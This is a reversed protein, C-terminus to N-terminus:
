SQGNVDLDFLSKSTLNVKVNWFFSCGDHVFIIDDSIKNNMEKSWIFNIWIIIEGNTNKFGVYQRKYKSLKKDIKPCNDSQNVKDKNLHAIEKNIILEALFVDESTPTYREKQNPVTILVEHIKDFIYGEFCKGKIFTPAINFLFQFILNLIILKM